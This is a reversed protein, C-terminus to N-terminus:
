RYALKWFRDEGPECLIEQYTFGKENMRKIHWKLASLSGERMDYRRVILIFQRWIKWVNDHGYLIGDIEISDEGKKFFYGVLWGYPNRLPYYGNLAIEAEVSSDFEIRTKLRGDELYEISDSSLIIRRSIWKKRLHMIFLGSVVMPIGIPFLWISLSVSDTTIIHYTIIAYLLISSLFTVIGIALKRNGDVLISEFEIVDQSHGIPAPLTDTM